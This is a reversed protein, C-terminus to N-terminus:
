NVNDRLLMWNRIMFSSSEEKFISSIERRCLFHIREVSPVLPCIWLVRIWFIGPFKSLRDTQANSISIVLFWHPFHKFLSHFLQLRPGYFTRKRPSSLLSLLSSTKSYLNMSQNKSGLFRHWINPTNEWMQLGLVTTVSSHLCSDTAKRTVSRVGHGGRVETHICLCIGCVDIGPSPFHPVLTGSTQEVEVRFFM